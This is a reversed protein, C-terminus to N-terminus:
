GPRKRTSWLELVLVLLQAAVPPGDQSVLATVVPRRQTGAVRKGAGRPVDVVTMM